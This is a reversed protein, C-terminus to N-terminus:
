EGEVYAPASIEKKLQDFAEEPTSGVGMDYEGNDPRIQTIVWEHRYGDTNRKVETLVSFHGEGMARVRAGLRYDNTAAEGLQELVRKVREADCKCECEGDVFEKLLPCYEYARNLVMSHLVCEGCKM